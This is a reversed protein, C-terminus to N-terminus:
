IDKSVSMWPTDVKWAGDYQGEVRVQLCGRAPVLLAKAHIDVLNSGGGDSSKNNRKKKEERERKRRRKEVDEERM